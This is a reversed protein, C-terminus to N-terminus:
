PASTSRQLLAGAPMPHAKPPDRFRERFARTILANAAPIGLTESNVVLDYLGPDDPDVGFHHRNFQRRQADEHRLQERATSEDLDKADRLRSLRFPESAVVLVRLTREAPLVFAAGRGLVVAMGRKAFTGLVRILARHYQSENYRHSHVSDRVFREIADRRREDLGAVLHPHIHSERAIQDVLEIGFFGFGLDEAVRRGLEAAGSGPLRSLAVCNPRPSATRREEQLMWRHVQRSVM